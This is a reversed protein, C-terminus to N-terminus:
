PTEIVAPVEYKQGAVDYIVFEIDTTGIPNLEDGQPSYRIHHYGDAQLDTMTFGPREPRDIFVSTTSGDQRRIRLVASDPDLDDPPRAVTLDISSKYVKLTITDGAVRRDTEEYPSDSRMWQGRIKMHDRGGRQQYATAEVKVEQGPEVDSFRHSFRFHGYPDYDTEIREGDIVAVCYDAFGMPNVLRHRWDQLVFDFPVEEGVHVMQLRAMSWQQGPARPGTASALSGTVCGNSFALLTVALHRHM